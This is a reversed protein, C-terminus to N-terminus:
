QEEPLAAPENFLTIAQYGQLIGFEIGDPHLREILFEFAPDGMAKLNSSLPTFFNDWHLPIVLDPRLKEITQNYFADQFERPQAALAGTSLFVVDAKLSDRAGEIYNAAANVMVAHNGHEIFFDFAGGEKYEGFRAPQPLPQSIEEGQDDNLGMFPPSHKAALVTVSFGGIQYTEGVSFQVLQDDSLNGGRGVNLTSQSGYLRAGTQQCVYAVDIAHDYHSHAVFVAALTQVDIEALAADVIEPDTAIKGLAVKLISPRTLFGDIMLKTEGDDFLLTTTGLFTVRVAGNQPAPAEGTILYEQYPSLDTGTSGLWVMLGLVALVLFVLIAVIIIIGTRLKSKIKM